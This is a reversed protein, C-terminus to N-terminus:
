VCGGGELDRGMFGGYQLALTNGMLEYQEMLTFAISSDAPAAPLYLMCLGRALELATRSAKPLRHRM